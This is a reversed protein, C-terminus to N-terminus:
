GCGVSRAIEFHRDRSLEGTAVVYDYRDCEWALLLTEGNPGYDLFRATRNGLAVREPETPFSVDPRESKLVVAYSSGNRYRLTLERPNRDQYTGYDFALRDPVAPEPVTTRAAAVLEARSRYNQRRVLTPDANPVDTEPDFRFTSEPIPDFSVNEYRVRIRNRQGDNTWVYHYALPVFHESDFWIAQTFNETVDEGFLNGRVRVHYAERGAVQETGVYTVNYGTDNAAAPDPTPASGAPVVPLPAVGPTPTEAGSVGRQANIKAFLPDLRAGLSGNFRDLGTIDMREATNTDDDYSWVTSRNVVLLDPGSSANELARRYYFREGPQRQVRYVSRNTGNGVERVVTMRATFGEVAAYRDSANEGIATPAADEGGGAAFLTYGAVLALLALVAGALVTGRTVGRSSM